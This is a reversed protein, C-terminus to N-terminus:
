QFINEVTVINFQEILQPLQFFDGFQYLFFLLYMTQISTDLNTRKRKTRFNDFGIFGIENQPGGQQQSPDSLLLYQQIM